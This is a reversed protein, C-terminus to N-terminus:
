HAPTCGLLTMTVDQQLQCVLRDLDLEALNGAERAGRVRGSVRGAPGRVDPCEPVRQLCGEPAKSHPERAM